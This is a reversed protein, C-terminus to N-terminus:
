EWGQTQSLHYGRNQYDNIQTLGVPSLYVKDGFSNRNQVNEVKWYGEMEDQNEGDWTVITGDAHKVKVNGINADDLVEPLETALDVWPGFLHDDDNGKDFNMYDIKNWRKLDLLRHNEFVFEM